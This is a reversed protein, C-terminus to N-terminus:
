GTGYETVSMSGGIGAQASVRMPNQLIEQCDLLQALSDCRATASPMSFVTPCHRLTSAPKRKGDECPGCNLLPVPDFM